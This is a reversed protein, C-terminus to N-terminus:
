LFLAMILNDYYVGDMKRVKRRTGEIEFGFSKYLGIAARNSSYVQLEVREFGKERAKNLALAMLRKGLGHGRYDKHVGMGLLGVHRFGDRDIPPIGCWGVVQADALAVLHINGRDINRKTFDVIVEYPHAQIRGLYIREKAINDFCAHFSPIHEERIQVIEIKSKNDKTM